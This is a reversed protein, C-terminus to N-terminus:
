RVPRYAVKAMLDRAPWLSAALYAAEASGAALLSDLWRHYVEEPWPRDNMCTWVLVAHPIITDEVPEGTIVFDDFANEPVIEGSGKWADVYEKTKEIFYMVNRGLAAELLWAIIQEGRASPNELWREAFYRTLAGPKHHTDLGLEDSTARTDV